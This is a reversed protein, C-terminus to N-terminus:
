PKPNLTLQEALQALSAHGRVKYWPHAMDLMKGVDVCYGAQKSIFARRGRLNM